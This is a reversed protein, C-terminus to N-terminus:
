AVAGAAVLADIEPASLGAAGLLARTDTVAADRVEQDPAVPVTGAWVAAVQRFTGHEPHKATVFAGRALYQADEVVEDVDLVPGVCTDAPALMAVWEDRGRTAFVASLSERVDDQVADDTQHAIWEPVGLANCLNAWFRPEIAAVTLWRGDGTAYVDYCAYRGTLLGSRPGQPAGTALYEDVMLAMLGLVGDAASVDLHGGVGTSARRVLAALVAMVAHM